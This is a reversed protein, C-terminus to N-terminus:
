WLSRMAAIGQAGMGKVVPLDQPTMGGLAFVPINAMAVLHRFNDWGMLSGPKFTKSVPSLTVFDVGIEEAKKLELENHCSASLWNQTSIPREELAMLQKSTLHIGDCDVEDFNVQEHNILLTVQYKRCLVAVTRALDLFDERLLKKSRLQVLKINETIFVNELHLLFEAPDDCEPTILYIDPLQTAVVIARNAPLMNVANLGKPDQWCIEQGELGAVEGSYSNVWWANLKVKREPYVYLLSILPTCNKVIVGVEELLERKLATVSDENPEIKGGPFEWYGGGLWHDPRKAILLQGQENIVIGVSVEIDKYKDPSLLKVM